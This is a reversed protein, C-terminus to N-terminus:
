DSISKIQCNFEPIEEEQENSEQSEKRQRDVLDVDVGAFTSTM